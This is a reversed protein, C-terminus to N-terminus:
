RCRALTVVRDGDRLARQLERRNDRECALLDNKHEVKDDLSAVKDQLRAITELLADTSEDAVAPAATFCLLLAVACMIKKM